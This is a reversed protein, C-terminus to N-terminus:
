GGKVAEIAVLAGFWGPGLALVFGGLTTIWRRSSFLILLLGAAGPVGLVLAIVIDPRLPTSVLLMAGVSAVIGAAAGVLM